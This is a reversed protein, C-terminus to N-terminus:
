ITYLFNTKRNVAYYIPYGIMPFNNSNNMTKIGNPNAIHDEGANMQNNLNMDNNVYAGYNPPYMPNPNNNFPYNQQNMMPQYRPDFCGFNGNQQPPFNPYVIYSGKAEFVKPPAMVNQSNIIQDDKPLALLFDNKNLDVQNLSGHEKM